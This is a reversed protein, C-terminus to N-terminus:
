DRRSNKGDCREKLKQTQSDRLYDLRQQLWTSRPWAMRSPPLHEGFYMGGNIPSLSFIKQWYSTKDVEIKESM